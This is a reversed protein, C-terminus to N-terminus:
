SKSSEKARLQREVSLPLINLLPAALFLTLGALPAALSVLVAIGYAAAFAFLRGHAKRLLIPSLSENTLRHSRTAYDWHLALVLTAVIVNVGYIILAPRGLPYHGLLATSLPMFSILLLYGINIWLFWRDVRVIFRYQNQQGIWLVGLNAFSIVYVLIQPAITRLAAPLQAAPVNVASPVTIGLILLTMAIAFVGDCLAEVRNTKLDRPDNAM